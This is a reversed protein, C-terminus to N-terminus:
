KILEEYMSRPLNVINISESTINILKSCFHKPCDSAFLQDAASRDNGLHRVHRGAPDTKAGSAHDSRDSEHRFRSVNEAYFRVVVRSLSYLYVVGFYQAPWIFYFRCRGKSERDFRRGDARRHRLVYQRRDTYFFLYDGARYVDDFATRVEHQHPVDCFVEGGSLGM